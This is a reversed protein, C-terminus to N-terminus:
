SACPFDIMWCPAAASSSLEVVSRAAQLSVARIASLYPGAAEGRGNADKANMRPM